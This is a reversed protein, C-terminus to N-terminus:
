NEDLNPQFMIFYEKSSNIKPIASAAGFFESPIPQNTRM